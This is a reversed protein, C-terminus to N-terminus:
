LQKWSDCVDSNKKFSSEPKCYVSQPMDSMAYEKHTLDSYGQENAEQVSIAHGCSVCRRDSM